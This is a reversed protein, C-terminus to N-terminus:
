PLGSCSLVAEWDDPFTAHIVIWDHALSLTDTDESSLRDTGIIMRVEARDTLPIAQMAEETQVANYATRMASINESPFEVWITM